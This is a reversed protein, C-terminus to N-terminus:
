LEPSGAEDEIRKAEAAKAAEEAAEGGGAAEGALEETDEGACASTM